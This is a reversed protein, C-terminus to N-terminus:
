RDRSKSRQLLDPRIKRTKEVRKEMRWNEIAGHNGSLLIKPVQRGKFGEPRTYVPYDLLRSVKGNLKVETFSESLTSEAEGVFGPLLRSVGEIVVLAATEGGSLVYDGISIQEDVFLDKFREDVGEYHGCILIFWRKKSFVEAKEQNFSAGTPDLLIVKPKVRLGRTRGQALVNKLALELVDPKLVMGPGGGFPRDDVQKHTGIGFQRIDHVTVHILKNKIAKSVLSTRLPSHFFNPFLTLIDFYLKPRSM